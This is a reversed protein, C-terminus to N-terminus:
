KGGEPLEYQGNRLWQEERSGAFNKRLQLGLSSEAERNGLRREIRLGLWLIEATPQAADLTRYVLKKAEVYEGRRYTIEALGSLAQSLQPRLRLANQFFKEAGADDKKKLMCLGVNLHAKEPTSYLPNKLASLFHGIADDMRGRQCLFWGYNNHAEPNAPDMELSRRFYEDARADERLEMYTLGLMNYAPAYRSDSQVAENLEELAIGFQGRSLYAAGLETHIEARSRANSQEAASASFAWCCLALLLFKKM